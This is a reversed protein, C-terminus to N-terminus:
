STAFIDRYQENMKDLAEVACSVWAEGRILPSEVPGPGAKVVAEAYSTLAQIIFMQMLAGHRSREMLDVIFEVNTKRETM